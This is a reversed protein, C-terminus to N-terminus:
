PKLDLSAKGSEVDFPVSNHEHTIMWTGDVRRYCVTSRWWMQLKYGDTRMASVQNLSHAFAVDDGAAIRLDRMEYGIPGQFSAFWEKTRERLAELGISQLANVVDFLLVDPAVNFTAANVDKARIAAIRSDILARIETESSASTM